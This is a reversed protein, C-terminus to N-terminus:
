DHKSERKSSEQIRAAQLCATIGEALIMPTTIVTLLVFDSPKIEGIGNLAYAVLIVAWAGLWMSFLSSFVIDHITKQSTEELQVSANLGLVVGIGGFIASIIISFWISHNSGISYGILLGYVSSVAVIICLDGLFSRFSLSRKLEERWDRLMTRKSRIALYLTICIIGLIWVIVLGGM